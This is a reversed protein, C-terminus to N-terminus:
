WYVSNEACSLLVTHGSDYRYRRGSHQVSLNGSTDMKPCADMNQNQFKEPQSFYIFPLRRSIMSLLCVKINLAPKRLLADTFLSM